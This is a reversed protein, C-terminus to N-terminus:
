STKTKKPNTMKILDDDSSPIGILSLGDDSTSDSTVTSLLEDVAPDVCTNKKITIKLDSKGDHKASWTVCKQGEKEEVVNELNKQYDSHSDRKRKTENDRSATEVDSEDRHHVDAEITRIEIDSNEKSNEMLKCSSDNEKQMDKSNSLDPDENCLGKDNDEEQGNGKGESNDDVQHKESLQVEGNDTVDKKKQQKGQENERTLNMDPFDKEDFININESFDANCDKLMHGVSGCKFCTRVQSSYMFSINHGRITCSSPINNKVIMKVTRVGNLLGKFPGTVFRNLRM